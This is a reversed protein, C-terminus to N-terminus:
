SLAELLRAGEEATIKGEAVLNLVVMREDATTTSSPAEAQPEAQGTPSTSGQSQFGQQQWAEHCAATAREIEEAMQNMAQSVQRGIAEFDVDAMAAWVQQGITQGMRGMEAGMRGLDAGMRVWDEDWCCNSGTSGKTEGNMHEGKM